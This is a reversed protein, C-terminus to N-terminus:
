FIILTGQYRRWIIKDNKLSYFWGDSLMFLISSM